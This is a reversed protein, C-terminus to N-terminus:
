GRRITRRGDHKEMIHPFRDYQHVMCQGEGIIGNEVEVSECYGITNVGGDGRPHITVALRGSRCIHNHIAQDLGVRAPLTRLAEWMVTCYEVLRGATIGACIIPKDGHKVVGFIEHMWQSNYPCSSITMSEDEQYAHIGETPMHTEPNSQFIVDRIDSLIAPEDIGRLKEKWALFRRTNVHFGSPIDNVIEVGQEILWERAPCADCVCAIRGKYGTAKLSTIFPEVQEVGYGIATTLVIM